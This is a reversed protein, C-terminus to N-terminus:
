KNVGFTDSRLGLRETELLLLFQPDINGLNVNSGILNIFHMQSEATPAEFIIKQIPCFEIIDSLLGDRIEGNKRFLGATGSDRGETIVHSAGVDLLSNIEKIWVSPPMIVTDDKSGVEALITFDDKLEKVLALREDLGIDITGESIEITDINHRKLFVCYEDLKKQSYFKEFLTGGFYVEVDHKRYIEIKEDLKKTCYATGVGFKAIDVYDSYDSLISNLGDCTLYTDHVSTIGNTRKKKNRKPLDLGSM